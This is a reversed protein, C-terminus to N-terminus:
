SDSAAGSIVQKVISFNFGRSQLYRIQKARDEPSEAASRFKRGWLARARDLESDKLTSIVASVEDETVGKQRLTHAVRQAGYKAGLRRSTSEAFRAENLFGQEHCWDAAAEVDTTEFNADVLKGIFEARSYDRRSLLKLAASVLARDEPKQAPVRTTSDM